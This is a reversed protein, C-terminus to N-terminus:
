EIHPPCLSEVELQEALSTFQSELGIYPHWSGHTIPFEEIFTELSSPQSTSYGLDNLCDRMAVLQLYVREATEPDTPRDPPPGAETRCQAILAEMEGNSMAPGPEASFSVASTVEVTAGGERLCDALVQTYIEADSQEPLATTTGETHSGSGGSTCAALVVLASLWISGRRGGSKM